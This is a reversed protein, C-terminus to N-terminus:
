KLAEILNAIGVLLTGIAMVAQIVLKILSKKKKKKKSM